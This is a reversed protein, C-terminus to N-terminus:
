FITVLVFNCYFIKTFINFFTNMKYNLKNEMLYIQKVNNEISQVGFFTYSIFQTQYSHMNGGRYKMIVVSKKEKM